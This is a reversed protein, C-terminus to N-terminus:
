IQMEEEDKQNDNELIMEIDIIEKREHDIQVEDKKLIQLDSEEKMISDPLEHPGVQAVTREM